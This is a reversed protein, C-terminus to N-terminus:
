SFKEVWHTGLKLGSLYAAEMSRGQFYDGTLALPALDDESEIFQMDLSKKPLHYRWLHSQHWEPRAAWSGLIAGLAKMIRRGAENLDDLEIMEKAFRHTTHAVLNMDGSYDRKSSENCIWSLVPHDCVVAKWVAPNREGYGAMFSITSTYSIDDILTIMKRIDFEDQATSVLGYAQIAPTAIIVADAEFVNISSSNIMWPSKRIRSGGIHTIGGVKESMYFDMWRSFYKGISNMGEPAIYLKRPERGPMEALIRGETYCSVTDTWGAVIGKAELEEIFTRFEPSTGTLYPAGHDLKVAAAGNRRRTSMRGGYGKSKEYVIVEHGAKALIRGATLGSLGAGIIGIKM